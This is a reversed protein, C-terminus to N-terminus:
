IRIEEQGAGLTAGPPTANSTKSASSRMRRGGARGAIAASATTTRM